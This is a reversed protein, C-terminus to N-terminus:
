YGDMDHSFIDGGREAFRQLADEAQEDARGAAGCAALIFTVAVFGAVIVVALIM